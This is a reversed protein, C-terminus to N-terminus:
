KKREYKGALGRKKGEVLKAPGRPKPSTGTLLLSLAHPGAKQFVREDKVQTKWHLNRIKPMRIDKKTKKRREGEDRHERKKREGETRHSHHAAVRRDPCAAPKGFGRGMFRRQDEKITKKRMKRQKKKGWSERGGKGGASCGWIKRM